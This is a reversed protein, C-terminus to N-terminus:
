PQHPGPNEAFAAPLSISTLHAAALQELLRPLVELVLPAGDHLLLIDGAALGRTLRALVRRPDRAVADYGRRTWSAYTLGRRALLPDLLPSRFGAPARFFLPARGTIGALAAQAADVERRLRGWGFFSFGHRHHQSHNEVSHGRRVIERVLQPHAQAKAGICFFSAQAGHRDLLDLVQPTIGPDPGDDFNLSVARRGAAAAPLRTLNPGLLQGRPWLVALSILLHSGLLTGLVWPWGAPALILAPVAAGHLLMAAGVLPAPRWPRPAGAAPDPQAAALQM